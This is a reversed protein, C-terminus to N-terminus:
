CEGQWNKCASMKTKGVSKKLTPILIVCAVLDGTVYKVNVLRDTQLIDETDQIVGSMM